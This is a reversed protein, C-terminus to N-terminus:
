FFVQQLSAGYRHWDPKSFIALLNAGFTAEFKHQMSPASQFRIAM